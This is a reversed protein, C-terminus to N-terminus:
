DKKYEKKVLEWVDNVYQECRFVLNAFKDEERRTNVFGIILSMDELHYTYVVVTGKAENNGIEGLQLVTFKLNSHGTENGFADMGRQLAGFVGIEAFAPGGSGDPGRLKQILKPERGQKTSSCELLLGQRLDSVFIADIGKKLEVIKNLLIEIENM